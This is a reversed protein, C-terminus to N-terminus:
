KRHNHHRRNKIGQESKDSPENQGNRETIAKTGISALKPQTRNVRKHYPVISHDLDAALANKRTRHETQHPMVNEAATMTETMTTDVIKKV